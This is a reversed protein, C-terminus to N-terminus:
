SVRAVGSEKLARATATVVKVAAPSLDRVEEMLARAEPPLSPGGGAAELLAPLPISLAESYRLLMELSPTGGREVESVWQATSGLREALQEQTLQMSRRRASLVTGLSKLFARIEM